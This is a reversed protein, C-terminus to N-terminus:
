PRDMWEANYPRRGETKFTHCGYCIVQTNKLTHMRRGGMGAAKIHDFNHARPTPLRRGCEQCRVIRDPHKRKERRWALKRIVTWLRMDEVRRERYSKKKGPKPFKM